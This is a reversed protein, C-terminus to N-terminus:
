RSNMWLILAIIAATALACFGGIIMLFQIDFAVGCAFIAVSGIFLLGFIRLNM